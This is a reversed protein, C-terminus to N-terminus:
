YHSNIFDAVVASENIARPAIRVRNPPFYSFIQLSQMVDPMYKVELNWKSSQFADKPVVLNPKAELANVKELMATHCSACDNSDANHLSPNEIRHANAFKVQPEDSLYLNDKKVGLPSPSLLGGSRTGDIRQVVLQSLNPGAKEGPIPLAIVEGSQLDLKVFPWHGGQNTEAFFAVQALNSSRAFRHVLGIVGKYYQGELGEKIIDPQPQLAERSTDLGSAAKLERLTKVIEKMDEPSIIYITHVNADKLMGRSTEQWVMRFEIRCKSLDSGAFSANACPDIRISTMRYPNLNSNRTPGEFDGFMGLITEMEKKEASTLRDSSEFSDFDAQRTEIDAATVDSIKLLVSMPVFAEGDLPLAKLGPALSEPDPKDNLQPAVSFLEPKEKYPLLISVDNLGLEIKVADLPATDMKALSVQAEEKDSCALVLTSLALPLLFQVFPIRTM